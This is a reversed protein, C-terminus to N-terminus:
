GPRIASGRYAAFGGHDTVVEDNEVQTVTGEGPRPETRYFPPNTDGAVAAPVPDPDAESVIVTSQDGQEATVPAVSFVALALVAALLLPVKLNWMTM